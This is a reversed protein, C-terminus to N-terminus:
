KLAAYENKAAVLPPLDADADKWTVFLEQYAKRASDKDGVLTYARALGLQASGYDQLGSVLANGRHRLARKFAAIAHPGDHVQLYTIGQLYPMPSINDYAERGSMLQLADKYQHGNMAIGARISPVLTQNILTDQPYTRELEDCISQALASQQTVVAAAAASGLTGKSRDL